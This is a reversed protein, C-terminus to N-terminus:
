LYDEKDYYDEIVTCTLFSPLSILSSRYVRECDFIEVYLFIYSDGPLRTTLSKVKVRSDHPNLGQGPFKWMYNSYYPLLLFLLLLLFLFFLFFLLLLLLFFFVFFFLLLHLLLFFFFLFFFHLLLHCLLLIVAVLALFKIFLSVYINIYLFLYGLSKQKHM